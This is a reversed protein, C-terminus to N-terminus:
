REFFTSLFLDLLSTDNQKMLSEHVQMEITMEMKGELYLFFVYIYVYIHTYKNRVLIQLFFSFIHSACLFSFDKAFQPSAFVM